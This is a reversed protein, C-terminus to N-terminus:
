PILHTKQYKMQQAEKMLPADKKAQDEAMQKKWALFQAFEQEDFQTSANTM